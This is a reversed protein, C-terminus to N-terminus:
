RVESALVRDMLGSFKLPSFPAAPMVEDLEYSILLVAVGKDREAILMKHVNEIAGVDLGRTPQVAILVKPDNAIERAIIIKQQNGGSLSGAKKSGCDEPRIDYDKVMKKMGTDERLQKLGEWASQNFSQDNVGGTDTIMAIMYDYNSETRDPTGCAALSVCLVAAMLIATLKKVRAM